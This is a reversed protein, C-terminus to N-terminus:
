QLKWKIVKLLASTVMTTFDIISLGLFIGVCGGIDSALSNFDYYLIMSQVKIDSQMYVGIFSENKSKNSGSSPNGLYTQMEACPSWAPPNKGYIFRLYLDQAMKGSESDNCIPVLGNTINSIIPPHFPVSCNFKVENRHAIAKYSAEDYNRNM